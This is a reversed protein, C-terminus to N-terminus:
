IGRVTWNTQKHSLAQTPIGLEALDALVREAAHTAHSGTLLLNYLAQAEAPDHRAAELAEELAVRASAWPDPRLPMPKPPRGDGVPLDPAPTFLSAQEGRCTLNDSPLLDLAAAAADLLQAQVPWAFAEFPRWTAQGARVPHGSSAWALHLDDTHSGWYTAPTSLEDLLTRLLRFWVAAHVPRRPLQVRGTTMGQHTRHDMAQVTATADRPRQNDGPWILTGPLGLCPELLCGHEPCSRLLPLRWMLLMGQRDPDALCVPCARQVPQDAIWARWPGVHHKSKKGPKLLVSFQHVYTDFATPTAEISDVLWPTWGALSMGRTRTPDIGTREALAVLLQQAPDLDLDQETTHTDGLGHELLSAVSMDYSAAIRRLWSSLAEGELPAPHLPWRAPPRM